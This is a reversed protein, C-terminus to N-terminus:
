KVIKMIHYELSLPTNNRLYFLMHGYPFQKPREKESVVGAGNGFCNGVPVTKAGEKKETSKEFDIKHDENLTCETTRGIKLCRLHNGDKFYCKKLWARLFHM